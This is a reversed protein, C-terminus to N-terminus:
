KKTTANEFEEQSLEGDGDADAVEFQDETITPMATVLETMSVSDSEDTDVAEFKLGEAQASVLAFTTLAAATMLIKKM